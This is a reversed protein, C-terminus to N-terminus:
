NNLGWYSANPHKKEAVTSAQPGEFGYSLARFSYIYDGLVRNFDNLSRYYASRDRLKQVM